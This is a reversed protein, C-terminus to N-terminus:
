PRCVNLNPGTSVTYIRANRSADLVFRITAPHPSLALTTHFEGFPGVEQYHTLPNGAAIVKGNEDVEYHGTIKGVTGFGGFFGNASIHGLTSDSFPMVDLTLTNDQRSASPIAPAPAPSLNAAGILNTNYGAHLPYANWNEALQEGAHFTRLDDRQGGAGQHSQEASDAWLVAPNGTM